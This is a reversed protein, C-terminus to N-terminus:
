ETEGITSLINSMYPLNDKGWQCFEKWEEMKHNKRNPYITLFTEYPFMTTRTYLFSQPINDIMNRWTKPNKNKQYETILRNVETLIIPSVNGAFDDSSLTKVGLKHMQSTSNKVTHLYTDFEDWWKLCATIEGIIMIQRLCKRHSPGAKCLKLLLELDKPGIKENTSDSLESGNMPMRMGRMAMKFNSVEFNELKIVVIEEEFFM